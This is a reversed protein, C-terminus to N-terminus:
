SRGHFPGSVDPEPMPTASDSWRKGNVIYSISPQSVGYESALASQREGDAYRRRIDSVQEQSLKAKVCQEGKPAWHVGGRAAVAEALNERHTGVRMHSPNVCLTQGCQHLLDMGSPIPGRILTWVARHAVVRSGGLSTQGYERNLGCRSGTWMWHGDYADDVEISEMVRDIPSLTRWQGGKPRM